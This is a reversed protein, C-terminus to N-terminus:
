RKGLYYAPNNPDTFDIRVVYNGAEVAINNDADTDLVGDGTADGYSTDWANNERIKIEGDILPVGEVFWIGPNVETLSYDPGAGGWDNYGSGVIGWLNAAELTYSNDKFDITFTYHGETVAINNDADTDLIGDLTADGYSVDWKNNMRVKIEGDILRVGVKFTDTTYDYYFKADPGAGGWDNFGSGVVGWSFEEITYSNDGLDITIKYDGATVAINNDADTDLVGDGTADGLNSDWANNERFKIEGDVLNVYSVIVNPTSTTYFPADAFALWNNYGSGVVGWSSVEIGSGSGVAEPLLVNITMIESYSTPSNAGGDGVFAKVRFYISGANPLDSDPDDDLGALEALLLMDSVKVGLNNESTTGIITPTEFGTTAAGQLEYSAPTAVSFDPINWVFREAINNLTQKTLTYESLVTNTFAVNESPEQATFILNDDDECSTLGLFAIFLLGILKITKM